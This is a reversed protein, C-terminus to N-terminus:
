DLFRVKGTHLDYMGGTIGVTGADIMERLIPSRERIQQMVLRVNAEAVADVSRDTSSAVAPQIRDLLGTLHGLKVGDCAGKVAGCATHGVVAILRAGAAKCAFEMSGLIDDNLINGAVRANFLDGHGQDFIIEASTRSDLCSLVVAYPFQGPATESRARSWDRGLTQGSVYRENGAKLRQKAEAPSMAQQQARTTTPASAAPPRTACGTALLAALAALALRAPHLVFTSTTM